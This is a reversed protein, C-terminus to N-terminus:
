PTPAPSCAKELGSYEVACLAPNTQVFNLNNNGDDLADKIFEQCSRVTSAAKTLGNAGLTANAADILAGVSIFGKASLGPVTCGAPPTGAYLNAGAPVKGDPGGYNVNLIMASMQASLMYAMNTATANLLWTRFDKFAGAHLVGAVDYNLGAANRLNYGNLLTKWAPFYQSLRANGNPNSWFGLTRGNGGGLCVNGFNNRYSSEPVTIPSITTDTTSLWTQGGEPIVECVGYDGASLGAFSYMGLPNQVTTTNSIAKGFLEIQYGAIGIEGDGEDFDGDLNTDYFKFGEINYTVPPNPGCNETCVTRVKFNDTKTDSGVFKLVKPDIPDISTAATQAILWVKYEGGNNPTDNYPFLQVPIAGNAANYSGNVHACAGSAPAAGSIVGKGSVPSPAVVLQRCVAPDTSLLVSGSPNTVQFYYTGVPLGAANANQPGGNLFVDEKATYLNMNVTAGNGVSTYIAGSIAAQAAFPLALALVAGKRIMTHRRGISGSVNINMDIGKQGLAVVPIISPTEGANM